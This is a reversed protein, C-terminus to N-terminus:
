AIDTLKAFFEQFHEDLQRSEIEDSEDHVGRDVLSTPTNALENPERM